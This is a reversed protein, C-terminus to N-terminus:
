GEGRRFQKKTPHEKEYNTVSHRFIKAPKKYSCWAQECMAM